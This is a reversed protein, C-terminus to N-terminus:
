EESTRSTRRRSRRLCCSTAWCTSRKPSRTDLTHVYFGTYEKTTFADVDGGLRDIARAIEANSRRRTRKFLVHELFHSMGRRAAPEDGSGARVFFGLAFSRVDQMEDILVTVGNDLVHRVVM